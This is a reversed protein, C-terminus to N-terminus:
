KQLNLYKMIKQVGSANLQLQSMDVGELKEALVDAIVDLKESLGTLFSGVQFTINNESEVDDCKMQLLLKCHEYEVIFTEIVYNLVHERCLMDYDQELDNSLELNTYAVITKMTFCIYKDINDFAYMGKKYLLCEAIIDNILRKKDKISLYDKVELQKKLVEQLQEQKLMKNKPNNIFEVLENIKM